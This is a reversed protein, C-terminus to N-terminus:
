DLPCNESVKDSPVTRDKSYPKQTICKTHWCYFKNDHSGQCYPCEPCKTIKIVKHNNLLNTLPTGPNNKEVQELIIKRLSM